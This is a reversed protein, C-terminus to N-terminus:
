SRSNGSFSAIRVPKLALGIHRELYLVNIVSRFRIIYRLFVWEYIAEKILCSSSSITEQGRFINNIYTDVIQPVIVNQNTANSSLSRPWNVGDTVITFPLILTVLLSKSLLKITLSTLLEINSHTFCPPLFCTRPSYTLHHQSINESETLRFKVPYKHSAIDPALYNLSYNLCNNRRSYWEPLSICGASGKGYM